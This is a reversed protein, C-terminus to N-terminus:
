PIAPAPRSDATALTIRQEEAGAMLFGIGSMALAICLCTWEREIGSNNVVRPVHLVVVWLLFMLGLLGTALIKQCNIVLSLVTGLFAVGVAYAWFVPAPIWSPILTAIYQAYIFHLIGFILLSVAFLIKGATVLGPWSKRSPLLSPNWVGAAYLAGGGLAMLESAVTWTGGNSLQTILRPFHLGLVGLLFFIGTGLAAQDAKQRLGMGLGGAVLVLGTVIVLLFRGPFPAPFPVLAVPFNGTVLHMLGLCVCSTALLMRGLTFVTKM